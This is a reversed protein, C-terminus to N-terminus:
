FYLASADQGALVSCNRGLVGGQKSYRVKKCGIELDLFIELLNFILVAVCVCVDHSFSLFFIHILFIKM